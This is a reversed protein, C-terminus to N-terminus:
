RREEVDMSTTNVWRITPGPIAVGPWRYFKTVGCGEAVCNGYRDVNRCLNVNNFTIDVSPLMNQILNKWIEALLHKLMSAIMKNVLNQFLNPGAPAIIANIINDAKGNGTNVKSWGTPINLALYISEAPITIGKSNFTVSNQEANHRGVIYANLVKLVTTGPVPINENSPGRFESVCINTQTTIAINVNTVDIEMSFYYRADGGSQKIDITDGAHLSVLRMNNLGKIANIGARYDYSCTPCIGFLESTSCISDESWVTHGLEINGLTSTPCSQCVKFEQSNIFTSNGLMANIQRTLFQTIQESTDTDASIYLTNTLPTLPTSSLLSVPSSTTQQATLNKSIEQNLYDVLPGSIMGFMWTFDAREIALFSLSNIKFQQIRISFQGQENTTLVIKMETQADVTISGLSEPAFLKLQIGDVGLILHTNLTILDGCINSSLPDFEVSIFRLPSTSTIGITTELAEVKVSYNLPGLQSLQSNIVAPLVDRLQRTLLDGIPIASCNTAAVTTTTTTTFTPLTVTQAGALKGVQLLERSNKQTFLLYLGALLLVILVVVVIIKVLRELNNEQSKQKNFNFNFCDNM